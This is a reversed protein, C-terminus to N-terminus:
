RYSNSALWAPMKARMWPHEILRYTISSVMLTVAACFAVVAWYYEPPMKEIPALKNVARLVIFLITCHLLYLSYSIIGLFRSSKLRLLGFLDNGNTICFFCIFLLVASAPTYI